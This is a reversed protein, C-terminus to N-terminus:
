FRLVEQHCSVNLWVSVRTLILFLSLLCLRLIRQRIVAVVNRQQMHVSLALAGATVAFRNFQMM